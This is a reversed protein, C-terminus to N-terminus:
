LSRHCVLRPIKGAECQLLLAQEPRRESSLAREPVYINFTVGDDDSRRGSCAKSRRIRRGSLKLTQLGVATTAARNRDSRRDQQEV